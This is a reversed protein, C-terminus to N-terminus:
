EVVMQEVKRNRSIKLKIRPVNVLQARLAGADLAQAPNRYQLSDLEAQIIGKNKNCEDDMFDQFEAKAGAEVIVAKTLTSSSAVLERLVPKTFLISGEYAANNELRGSCVETSLSELSHSEKLFDLIGYVNGACLDVSTLSKPLVTVDMIKPPFHFKLTRLYNFGNFFALDFLDSANQSDELTVNNPTSVVIAISELAPNRKVVSVIGRLLNKDMLVVSLSRLCSQGELLTSWSGTGFSKIDVHRLQIENRAADMDPWNPYPSNDVLIKKLHPNLAKGVIKSILQTSISDSEVDETSSSQIIESNRYM